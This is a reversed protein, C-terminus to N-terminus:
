KSIKYINIMLLISYIHTWNIKSKREVYSFINNLVDPIFTKEKNGAMNIACGNYYLRSLVTFILLVINISLVRKDYVFLSTLIVIVNMWLHPLELLEKKGSMIGYKFLFISLINIVVYGDIENLKLRYINELTERGFLILIQILIIVSVFFVFTDPKM